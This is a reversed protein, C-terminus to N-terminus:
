ASIGVKIQTVREALQRWARGHLILVRRQPSGPAGPAEWGAVGLKAKLRKLRRVRAKLFTPAMRYCIGCIIATNPPFKAADATRRCGLIMCPIRGPPPWPKGPAM